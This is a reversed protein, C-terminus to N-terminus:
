FRYMNRHILLMGDEDLLLHFDNRMFQLAISSFNLVLLAVEFCTETTQTLLNSDSCYNNLIELKRCLERLMRPIIQLAGNEVQAVEPFTNAHIQSAM